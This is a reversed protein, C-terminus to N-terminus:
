SKHTYTITCIHQYLLTHSSNSGIHTSTKIHLHTNKTTSKHTPELCYEISTLIQDNQKANADPM